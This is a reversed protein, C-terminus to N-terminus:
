GQAVWCVGYTLMVETPLLCGGAGGNAFVSARTTAALSGVYGVTSMFSVNFGGEAFRLLICTKGVGAALSVCDSARGEPARPRLSPLRRLIRVRNGAEGSDGILALKYMPAAEQEEDTTSLTDM